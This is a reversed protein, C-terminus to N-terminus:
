GPALHRPASGRRLAARIALLKRTGEKMSFAVRGWASQAIQIRSVLAINGKSWYPKFSEHGVGLDFDRQHELAWRVWAETTIAGPAHKAYQHDFGAMMGLMSGKGLGIMNVAIPVDNLTLVMVRGSAEADRECPHNALAVLYDRFAKSYLWKGKKQVREAWDRKLALMWDIMRINEDADEPGLIRLDVKGQRELRRRLVGPKKGSLTGLSAAFSEWDAERSLRAVAYPSDEAKMLGKHTMGLRYLHSGRDVYDLLIIDSACQENAVHWISEVLEGSAHVPDVLVTTYDSSGSSLPRLVAWLLDHSRVLPWVAILRGDHRVAIIRLSRGKPKAVYEWSFWCAIYSEHHRGKARSWLAHWEDHLAQFGEPTKIVEIDGVQAIM